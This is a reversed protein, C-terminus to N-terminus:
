RRHSVPGHITIRNTIGKLGSVGGLTDEAARRQDNRDVDGELRVWGDAVRACIGKPPVRADDELAHVVSAALERDAQEHDAREKVDVDNVVAHVGKVRKVASEAVVKQAYNEVVGTITVVGSDSIAVDLRSGGLKPEWELEGLLDQRLAEQQVKM